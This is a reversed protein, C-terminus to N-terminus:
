RDTRGWSRRRGERWVFWAYATKPDTQGNRFSPRASLVFVDPENRRFFPSREESELFALRLLDVNYGGPALRSLGYQVFEMAHSFPPNTIVLDYRQPTDDFWFARKIVAEHQPAIDFADVTADPWTRRLPGLLAGNGAAPELISRPTMFRALRRLLAEIAWEPTQYFDHEPRAVLRVM